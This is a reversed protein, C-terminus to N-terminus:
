CQLRVDVQVQQQQAQMSIKVVEAPVLVLACLLMAFAACVFRAVAPSTRNELFPVSKEYAAMKVAGGLGEGIVYPVVGRYFAAIGGSTYILKAAAQFNM